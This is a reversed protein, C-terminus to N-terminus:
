RDPDPEGGGKYLHRAAVIGNCLRGLLRRLRLLQRPVASLLNREEQLRLPRRELAHRREEAGM